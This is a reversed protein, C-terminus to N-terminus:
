ESILGKLKYLYDLAERPNMTDPNLDKIEKELKGSEPTLKESRAMKLLPLDESLDHLKVKQGSKELKELIKWARKIVPAPIGALEAVHIGYSRDAAGKIVKHLFIIKNEWEKISMSYCIVAPLTKELSSLEHYHTAFLTRCRSLNHLHEVTAWALSVGDYTSTGRGIEDLIVFSRQTSQNLIASTEVMEVMFTSRGRALDDSAGVRSFVRDVIGIHVKKAPVFSGMQAMIVILANQRLFTSKGAMNPGTLLWVRNNEDLDCNNPTFTQSDNSKLTKEVVPHRGEVIDMKLSTDIKPRCFGESEALHALAFTLDIEALVSAIGSFDTQYQLIEKVIDDFVKLEISIAKEGATAIKQELESLEVTTFRLNSALTQRHIFYEPVKNKHTNTVEIYYGLVNNHKIKLSPIGTDRAMAMQMAAITQKGENKLQRLEDLEPLYGPAVFGGDRALLPMDEALMTELRKAFLEYKDLVSIKKEFIAPIKKGNFLRYVNASILLGDRINALDRPGGRGFNLRSLVREIDPLSKMETCISDSLKSNKAWEIADLRQDIIQINTIPMALRYALLRGGAATITHDITNLLSGKRQGSLTCSLELNRRTSADIQLFNNETQRKPPHLNPYKGKQTLFIYESLAGAASIEVAGFNGFGELTSVNFAELLRKESNKLNFRSDPQITLRDKWEKLCEYVESVETLKQPMLIEKPDLKALAGDLQTLSCNEIIFSGTSIDISAIGYIGKNEAIASLFNNQRAELLTDETLTGPTIVRVVDRKVVSKAGRKKAESAEEVQECVAVKFGERILRSIYSDSSHFPVGCMPIDDGEKKGRKTLTIELIKSAKVADEFFLEYFDGLRYFLLCDPYQQKIEFYQQLMPTLKGIQIESKTNTDQATM